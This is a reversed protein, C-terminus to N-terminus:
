GLVNKGSMAVSTGMNILFVILVDGPVSMEEADHLRLRLGVQM